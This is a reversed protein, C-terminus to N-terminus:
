VPQKLGHRKLTEIIQEPTLGTFTAIAEVAYGALHGNIVAKELGLAEGKELGIAEGKELGITEGKRLASERVAIETRIIDWYKEYAALEEPTFASEECLEAAQRIHENEQLEPPLATLSEDVEKLFRLWLVALKRDTVSEPRFKELEVLLFELCPIIEDTNERNVIQYHHYFHPTKHDFNENLIALTYVPHLLHYAERRKLQRVYAKGANFVIRNMFVADWDMQMEIIFHRKFNDKCKVDVISNKKGPNEPVQESPLYEIEVIHRDAEFPMVANLFNILLHPHEAFIRKFTLDNKPDLYRAM